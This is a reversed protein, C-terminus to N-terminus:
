FNLHGLWALWYNLVTVYLQILFHLTCPLQVLLPRHWYSLLGSLLPKVAAISYFYNFCYCLELSEHIWLMVSGDHVYSHQKQIDSPFSVIIPGCMKPTAICVSVIEVTYTRNWLPVFNWLSVPCVSNLYDGWSHTTLYNDRTDSDCSWIMNRIYCSITLIKVLWICVCQIYTALRNRWCCILMTYQIRSTWCLM